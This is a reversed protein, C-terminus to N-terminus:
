RHVGCGHLMVAVLQAVDAEDVEALMGGIVHLLSDGLELHAWHRRHM